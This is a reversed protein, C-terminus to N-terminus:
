YEGHTAELTLQTKSEWDFESVEPPKPVDGGTIFVRRVMGSSGDIPNAEAPWGLMLGSALVQCDMYLPAGFM